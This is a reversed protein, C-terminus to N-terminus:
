KRLSSLIRYIGYFALLIGPLTAAGILWILVTQALASGTSFLRWIELAILGWVAPLVVVLAASGCGDLARQFSTRGPRRLPSRGLNVPGSM